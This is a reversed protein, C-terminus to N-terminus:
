KVRRLHEFRVEGLRLNVWAVGSLTTMNLLRALHTSFDEVDDLATVAVGVDETLLPMEHHGIVSGAYKLRVLNRMSGTLSGIAERYLPLDLGLGIDRCLDVVCGRLEEHRGDGPWLVERTEFQRRTDKTLRTSLFRRAVRAPRFNVLSGHRTGALLLYNIGQGEHAKLTEKAAKVEVITSGELLLDIFYDKEFGRHKVRVRVESLVEMGDGACREALEAKYVVEDLLRGFQNHIAFAHGVMREDVKHFADQSIVAIPLSCEIPM